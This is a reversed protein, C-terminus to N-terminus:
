SHYLIHKDALVELSSAVAPELLTRGEVVVVMDVVETDGVAVM